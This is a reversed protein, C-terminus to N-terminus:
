SKRRPRFIVNLIKSLPSNSPTKTQAKSGLSEDLHLILTQARSTEAFINKYFRSKFEDPDEDCEAEIAYRLLAVGVHIFGERDASFTPRTGSHDIRFNGAAIMQDGALYSLISNKLEDQKRSDMYIVEHELQDKPLRAQSFRGKPAGAKATCIYEICGGALPILGPM